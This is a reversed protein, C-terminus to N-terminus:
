FVGKGLPAGHLSPLRQLPSSVQWNPTHEAPVATSQSSPLTHVASLQSGAEPHALVGSDFPVGHASPSTHLPSSIQWLPTQAAPVGSSQLSLSAQVLSVHVGILPQWFVGM